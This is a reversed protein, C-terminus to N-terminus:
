LGFKEHLRRRLDPALTQLFAQWQDPPLSSGYGDIIQKMETALAEPPQTWSAFADFLEAMHMLPARPNIRLMRCLGQFAHDKEIDDRISRLAMCWPKIFHELHPAGVEPCVLGLRGLTIATNEVLSKNVEEHKNIIPVLKALVGEVYPQTSPGM